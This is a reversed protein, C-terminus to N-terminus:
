SPRDVPVATYRTLPSSDQANSPRTHASSLARCLAPTPSGLLGLSQSCLARRRPSQETPSTCVTMRNAEPGARGSGKKSDLSGSSTQIDSGPSVFMQGGAPTVTKADLASNSPQKQTQPFRPAPFHLPQCKTLSPTNKQLRIASMSSNPERKQARRISRDERVLM